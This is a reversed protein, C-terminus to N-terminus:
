ACGTLRRNGVKGHMYPATQAGMAIVHSGSSQIALFHVVVEILYFNRAKSELVATSPLLRKECYRTTDRQGSWDQLSGSGGQLLGLSPMAMAHSAGTSGAPQPCFSVQRVLGAGMDGRAFIRTLTPSESIRAVQREVERVQYTCMPTDVKRTDIQQRCLVFNM